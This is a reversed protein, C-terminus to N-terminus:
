ATFHIRRNTRDMAKRTNSQQHAQRPPQKKDGQAKHRLGRCCAVLSFEVEERPIRTFFDALDHPRLWEDVFTVTAADATVDIHVEGEYAGDGLLAAIRESFKGGQRRRERRLADLYLGNGGEEVADLWVM